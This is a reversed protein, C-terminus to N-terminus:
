QQKSGDEIAKLREKLQALEAEARAAREEADAARRKLGDITQFPTKKEAKEIEEYSRGKDELLARRILYYFGLIVLGAIFLFVLVNTLTEGIIGSLFQLFSGLPDFVNATNRGDM